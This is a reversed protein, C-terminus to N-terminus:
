GDRKQIVVVRETEPHYALLVKQNVYDEMTPETSGRSSFISNTDVTILTGRHDPIEVTFYITDRMMGGRPQNLLGERFVFGDIQRYIDLIRLLYFLCFPCTALVMLVVLVISLFRKM